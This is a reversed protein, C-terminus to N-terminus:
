DKSFRDQEAASLDFQLINAPVKYKDVLTQALAWLDDTSLWAIDSALKEIHKTDM